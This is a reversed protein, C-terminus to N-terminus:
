NCPGSVTGPTFAATTAHSFWEIPRLSCTHASQDTTTEPTRTPRGATGSTRGSCGFRDLLSRSTPPPHSCSTRDHRDDFEELHTTSNSTRTKASRGSVRRTITPVDVDDLFRVLGTSLRGAGLSPGLQLHDPEAAGFWEEEARESREMILTLRRFAERASM